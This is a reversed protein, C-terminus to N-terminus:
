EGQKHLIQQLDEVFKVDDAYHHYCDNDSVRNLVGIKDEFRESLKESEKDSEWVCSIWGEIFNKLDRRQSNSLYEPSIFVVREVKDYYDTKHDTITFNYKEFTFRGKSTDTNARHELYHCIKGAQEDTLCYDIFISTKEWNPKTQTNM